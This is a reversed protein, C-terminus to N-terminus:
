KSILHPKINLRSKSQLVFQEFCFKNKNLTKQVSVNLNTQKPHTKYYMNIQNDSLAQFILVKKMLCWGHHHM